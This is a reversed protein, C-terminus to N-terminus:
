HAFSTVLPQVTDLFGYVFALLVYHGWCDCLKRFGLLYDISGCGSNHARDHYEADDIEDKIVM